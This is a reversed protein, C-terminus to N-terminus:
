LEARPTCQPCNTYYGTYCWPPITPAAERAQVTGEGPEGGRSTTFTEVALEDLALKLKKM